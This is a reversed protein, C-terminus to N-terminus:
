HLIAHTPHTSSSHLSPPFSSSLYPFYLTFVPYIYPPFFSLFPSSPSLFLPSLVSKIIRIPSSPLFSSLFLLPHSSFSPPSSIFLSPSFLKLLHLFSPSLLQQSVCSMFISSACPPQSSPVFSSPHPVNSNNNPKHFMRFHPHTPPHRLSNQKPSRLPSAISVCMDTTISASSM